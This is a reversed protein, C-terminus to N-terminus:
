QPRVDSRNELCLFAIWGFPVFLILLWWLSRRKRRLAWGGVILAVVIAILIGLGELAEDTISPAILVLFVGVIFALVWSAVIALFWSWNLHKQFWNLGKTEEERAKGAEMRGSGGALVPYGCWQCYDGDTTRGCNPCRGM